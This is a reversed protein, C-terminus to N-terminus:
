DTLLVEVQWRTNLEWTVTHVRRMTEEGPLVVLDGVCPVAPMEVIAFTRHNGPTRLVFRIPIM